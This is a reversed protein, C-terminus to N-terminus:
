AATVRGRQSLLDHWNYVGRGPGLETSLWYEGSEATREFERGTADVVKRVEADPPAPIEWATM